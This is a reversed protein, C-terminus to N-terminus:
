QARCIFGASLASLRGADYRTTHAADKPEPKANAKVTRKPAKASKKTKGHATTM